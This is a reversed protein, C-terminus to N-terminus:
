EEWKWFWMLEEVKKGPFTEVCPLATKVLCQGKSHLKTMSAYFKMRLSLKKPGQGFNNSFLLNKLAKKEVFPEQPCTSDLKKLGASFNLAFHKTKRSKKRIQYFFQIKYLFFFDWLIGIQVHLIYNQCVTSFTELFLGMKKKSPTLLKSFDEEM